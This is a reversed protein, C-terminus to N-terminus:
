NLYPLQSLHEETIMDSGCVDLIERYLRDQRNPDRAVEYMAWETTVSTTDAAEIIAEWVLM